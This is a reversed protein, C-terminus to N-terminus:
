TAPLDEPSDIDFRWPSDKIVHPEIGQRRSEAIHCNASDPGYQFKFDMGTPLALVNSGLGLHDTFLSISDGFEFLGLNAPQALDAHIIVVHAFQESAKLYAESVGENLGQHSPRFATLGRQAAFEEIDEDDTVIWTTLPRCAVLVGLALEEVLQATAGDSLHARLRQKATAFSKLPVLAIRDRMFATM